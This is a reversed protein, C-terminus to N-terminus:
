FIIKQSMDYLFAKLLTRIIENYVFEHFKTLGRDYRGGKRRWVVVYSPYIETFASLRPHITHLRAVNCSTAAM